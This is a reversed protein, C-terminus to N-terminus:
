LALDIFKAAFIDNMTFRCGFRDGVDHGYDSGFGLDGQYCIGVIMLYSASIKLFYELNLSFDGWSAFYKNFYSFM